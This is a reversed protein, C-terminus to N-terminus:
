FIGESFGSFDGGRSWVTDMSKGSNMGKQESGNQTDTQNTNSNNNNIIMNTNGGHGLGTTTKIANPCASNNNNNNTPTQNSLSSTTSTSSSGVGGGLASSSSASSATGIPRNGMEAEVKQPVGDGPSASESTGNTTPVNNNNGYEGYESKIPAERKFMRGADTEYTLRQVASKQDGGYLDGGPSHHKINNNTNRPSVVATPTTSRGNGTVTLHRSSNRNEQLPIRKLKTLDIQCLISKIPLAAAASRKGLNPSNFKGSIATSDSCDM